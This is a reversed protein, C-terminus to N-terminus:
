MPSTTTHATCLAVGPPTTLFPSITLATITRDFVPARRVSPEYIRKSSFAATITCSLFGLPVRINPGTARSNHSALNIFITERAGSTNYYYADIVLLRLTYLLLHALCAHLFPRYLLLAKQYLYLFALR